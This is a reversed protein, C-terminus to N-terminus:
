SHHTEKVNKRGPQHGILSFCSVGGLGNNLRKDVLSTAAAVREDVLAVLEVDADM